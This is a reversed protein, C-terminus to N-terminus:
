SSSRRWMARSMANLKGPHSLTVRALPGDLQLRVRGGM